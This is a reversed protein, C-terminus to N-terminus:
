RSFTAQRTGLLPLYFGAAIACNLIVNVWVGHYVSIATDPVFWATIALAIGVWAWRERRLFANRAIGVLTVGWGVVSMGLVGYIFAQFNASGVPAQGQWFAAAISQGLIADFLATQNGFAVFLGLVILSISEALMWRDWFRGTTAASRAAFLTTM